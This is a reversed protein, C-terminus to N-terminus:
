TSSEVFDEALQGTNILGVVDYGGPKHRLTIHSGQEAMTLPLQVYATQPYDCSELLCSVRNTLM